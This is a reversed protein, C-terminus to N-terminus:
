RRGRKSTPCHSPLNINEVQIGARAAVGRTVRAPAADAVAGANGPEQLLEEDANDEADEDSASEIYASFDPEAPFFVVGDKKVKNKIEQQELEKGAGGPLSSDSKAFKASDFIVEQDNLTLHRVRDVHVLIKKSHATAQVLVNLRGVVRIVRFPGKWTKYFKSNVGRPIQPFKVLVQDGVAFTREKSKRSHYEERALRASELNDRVQKFSLRMRQFAASSYDEGYIRRPNDLNFYPLRPSHLFTLFFPSEQTARQVHCNYAMMMAPLMEEWDLTNANDLLASLYRIMTRNYTEAQSNSQPHYSSTANHDIGLWGCLDSMVKNLFETGRDSVIHVPVGHRCIWAEFFAKAVSDATKDPIAVLETYKSFADTIVMIYKNGAASRTKLPGFLDMHVRFNPEECIPLSQLPSPAPKRGAMEQCRVCTSLFTDVDYTIGPWYYSLEIRDVTRQKGSHGGAWSSHAADMIMHRLCKPALLVRRPQRGPRRLEMWILGADIFCDKATKEVKSKYGLTHDPLEGTKLFRRVDQCFPDSQQAEKLDGSEDSLASIIANRSLADAAANDLGKKYNVKFDYELMQEQLRNLTKQHVKSLAELPKHDTFLEFHRGKLYVSFHDIAWAAAALELLYASYNCENPKLSRSAYSVVHETDDEWVQSLVAGFGGPHKDDGASADTTLRYCLGPKPHAVLPSACLAEKLYTFAEQSEVPLPGEKYGSESKTLKTLRTAYKSFDPILFRFYNALGVFERIKKLSDPMVFKRVADLKEEGPKVGEGSLSYGLYTVETAGFTSKSVNLKLNYKRLRLFASELRRLQEEHGRAHVLIDDIYTLIGELGRMVYDILRAFSAPSGQLGMPTVTWQYRTGRGPVTFATYQRSSEALSQQWFGSTLDITSFVDSQALGIEDVCDRVERITYRDAYSADNIARFDLVARLGHGHPKPVLFIPANFGSRSVEIAGKKLLEDVWDYIIQRHELPIRFQRRHVPEETKLNVQHEIVDTRGIDFKSKSCVDHYQLILDLYRERWAPPADVQLTRLLLDRDEASLPLPSAGRVPEKPEKSFNNFIEDVNGELKGKKVDELPVPDFYGVPVDYHCEVSDEGTNVVVSVVEGRWDTASFTDWVGLSDLAASSVGHTGVPLAEGGAGRVVLRAKVVSRPPVVLRSTPYLCALAQSDSSSIDKFYVDGADVVMQQERLFDIGLIVPVKSLGTIVYFPRTVVHDLITLTIEFCGVVGMPHGSAASLRFEPQVPLSKFNWHDRISRFFTDSMVSVSAGTDVLCRAVSGNFSADVFPRGDFTQYAPLTCIAFLYWIM